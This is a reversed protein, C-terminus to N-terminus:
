PADAQAVALHRAVKDVLRQHASASFNSARAWPGGPSRDRRRYHGAALVDAVDPRAKDVIATSTAALALHRVPCRRSSQGIRGERGGSHETPRSPAQAGTVTLGTCRLQVIRICPTACIKTGAVRTVAGTWPRSKTKKACPPSARTNSTCACFRQRLLRRGSKARLESWCAAWVRPLRRLARM